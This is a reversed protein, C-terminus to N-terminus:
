EFKETDGLKHVCYGSGAGVFIGLLPVWLRYWYFFNSMKKQTRDSIDPLGTKENMKGKVNEIKDPQVSPSAFNTDDNIM